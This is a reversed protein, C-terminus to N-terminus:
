TESSAAWGWSSRPTSRSSEALVIRRPTSLRPSPATSLASITAARSRAPSFYMAGSRRTAAGSQPIFYRGRAVAKPLSRASASPRAITPRSTSPQPKGPAARLSITAAFRSPHSAHSRGGDDRGEGGAQKPGPEARRHTGLGDVEQENEGGVYGAADVLAFEVQ